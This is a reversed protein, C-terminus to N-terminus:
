RRDRVAPGEGGTGKIRDGPLKRTVTGSAKVGVLLGPGSRGKKM